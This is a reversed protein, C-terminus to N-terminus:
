EGCISSFFETFRKLSSLIRGFFSAKTVDTSTSIDTGIQSTGELSGGAISASMSAALTINEGQAKLSPSLIQVSKNSKIILQGGLADNSEIIINNAKLVIDGSEADLVIDGHVARIIKSPEKAKFEADKGVVEMSTKYTLVELNGNSGIRIGGGNDGIVSFDYKSNSDIRFNAKQQVYEIPISADTNM